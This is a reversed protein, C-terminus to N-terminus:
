EQRLTQSPNLRTIRLAPIVSALAAILLVGTVVGVYTVGDAPTVGYLMGQVFRTGMRALAVGILLGLAACVLGPRASNRIAQGVTAGLALRIGFERTREAVSNSIMAYTGIVALLLALGAAVALLTSMFRQWAFTQLKIGDVTKFSAIPLSADVSRVAEEIQRQLGAQPGATRIVWNPSFWTHAMQLLSESFQTVPVYATPVKGIVGFNGWGAQQLTDGVVGVIQRQQQKGFVILAGLPDDSKFHMKVFAENVVMVPMSNAADAESIARGRKVPIRFVDFLQPTAYILNTLRISDEADTSRRMVTNLGREYPLSLTAAAAQVGPIAQLRLLADRYYNAVATGTAYRADRLAFSAASVNVPDFGPDLSWLYNFSRIVLGAAILLAVAVAIQATSLARRSWSRANGVIGRGTQATRIDVRGAQLAPFLGFLFSTAISAAAMILMVPIDLTAAKLSDFAGPLRSKMVNLSVYGLVLGLVGGSLALVLSETLLQRIIAARNAGLAMRTAMESSRSAGRALLMGAINVCGILLVLCTAALVILLPMELPAASLKRIDILGYRQRLGERQRRKQIISQGIAELEAEAQQRNVGPKLRGAIVYNYGGGEGATSPRLPTWLDANSEFLPSAVGVVEYKQGAIMVAQGVVSPDGRFARQWLPHSLVAVAPGNPVDEAATFERGLTPQVGFVRFFGAGVRQLHIYEVQGASSFNLERVSDSYVALDLTKANKSFLQWNAGDNGAQYESSGQYDSRVGVLGLREPEPYPLPRLLTANVVSFVATVSGICVGLTLIISATFLPKQFMMRVAHRVNQQFSM